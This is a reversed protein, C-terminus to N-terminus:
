GLSSPEAGEEPPEAMVNHENFKSALTLSFVLPISVIGAIRATAMGVYYPTKLLMTDAKGYQAMQVIKVGAEEYSVGDVHMIERRLRERAAPTSGGPAKSMLFLLEGSLESIHRPMERLDDPTPGSTRRVDAASPSALRRQTCLLRVSGLRRAAGSARRSWM